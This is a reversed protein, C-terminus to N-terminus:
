LVYGKVTKYFVYKENDNSLVGCHGFDCIKVLGKDFLLLNEPKLDRHVINRQHM